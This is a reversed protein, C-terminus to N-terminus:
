QNSSPVIIAVLATACVFEFRRGSIGGGAFTVGAGVVGITVSVGAVFAGAGAL